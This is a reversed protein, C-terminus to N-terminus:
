DDDFRFTYMGKLMDGEALPPLELSDLTSQLCDNLEKPLPQEKQDVIRDSAILTGVDRDGTLTMYVAAHLQKEAPTQFCEALFPIAEKLADRMEVTAHEIDTSSGTGASGGQGATPKTPPPTPTSPSSSSSPVPARTARAAQAAAIREKVRQRDGPSALRIVHAPPPTSASRHEAARPTAPDERRFWWIGGGVLAIVLLGAVIARPRM